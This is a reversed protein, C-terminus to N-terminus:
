TESKLPFYNLNIKFLLIKRIYMYINLQYKTNNTYYQSWVVSNKKNQKQKRKHFILQKEKYTSDCSLAQNHLSVIM